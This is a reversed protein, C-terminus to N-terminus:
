PQPNHVCTWASKRRAATSKEGSAEARDNSLASSLRSIKTTLGNFSPKNMAARRMEWRISWPCQAPYTGVGDRRAVDAFLNPIDLNPPKPCAGTLERQVPAQANASSTSNAVQPELRARDGANVRRRTEVCVNSAARWGSEIGAYSATHFWTIGHGTCDLGRPPIRAIPGREQSRVQTDWPADPNPVEPCGEHTSRPTLKSSAAQAGDSCANKNANWQAMAM